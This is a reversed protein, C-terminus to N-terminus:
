LNKKSPIENDWDKKAFNSRRVGFGKGQVTGDLIVTKKNVGIGYPPDTLVLDICKDPLEKLVDMCDAHIIKNTLDEINM